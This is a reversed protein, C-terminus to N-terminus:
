KYKLRLDNLRALLSFLGTRYFGLSASERFQDAYSAKYEYEGKLLDIKTAGSEVAQQIAYTMLVHGPSLSEHEPNFGTQFFMLTGKYMFAYEVGIIENNLTLTVLWVQNRQHLQQILSLHFQQYQESGFSGSEGKSEWRAVHLAILADFAAKIEDETKCVQLSVEGAANLRNQRRKMQKHTNRSIQKRFGEWESPLTAWRRSQITPKVHYGRSRGNLSTFSRYFATDVNVDTLLLRSPSSTSLLQECIADVVQAQISLVALINMDDPSTNGGTGIFRLTDRKAIGLARSQCRYFPGIGVLNQGEHVLILFLEGLHGYHEWWLKNWQWDNFLGAQDDQAALQQWADGLAEFDSTETVVTTRLQSM